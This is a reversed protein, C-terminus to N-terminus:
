GSTWLGSANFRIGNTPRQGVLQLDTDLEGTERQLAVCMFLSMESVLSRYINSLFVTSDVFPLSHTFSRVLVKAHWHLMEIHQLMRATYHLILVEPIEDGKADYARQLHVLNWGTKSGTSTSLMAGDALNVFSLACPFPSTTITTTKSTSHEENPIRDGIIQLIHYEWALCEMPSQSKLMMPGIGTERLIVVTENSTQAVVQDVVASCNDIVFETGIQVTGQKFSRPLVCTPLDYVCGAKSLVRALTTRRPFSGGSTTTTTSRKWRTTAEHINRSHVDMYRYSPASDIMPIMTTTDDSPVIVSINGFAMQPSELTTEDHDITAPRNRDLNSWLLLPFTATDGHSHCEEPSTTTGLHPFPDDNPTTLRPPVHPLPFCDTTEDGRRETYPDDIRQDAPPVGAENANNTDHFHHDDDDVGGVSDHDCFIAFGTASVHNDEKTPGEEKEEYITFPATVPRATLPIPSVPDVDPESLVDVRGAATPSPVALVPSAFLFSLERMAFQTHITPEASCLPENRHDDYTSSNTSTNQPLLQSSHNVSSDEEMDSPSQDVANHNTTTVVAVQYYGQQFRAEEFSQETRTTPHTLLRHKWMPRTTTTTTTTSAAHRQREDRGRRHQAWHEQRATEEAQQQRRCDDDMHIAFGVATNTSLLSPAPPPASRQHNTTSRTETTTSYTNRLPGSENWKEVVPIHTQNEKYREAETVMPRTSSSSLHTDRHHHRPFAPEPATDSFVAFSIPPPQSSSVNVQDTPHHRRRRDTFTSIQQQRQSSSRQQQPHSSPPLLLLALPEGEETPAYQRHVTSSLPHLIGRLSSSSAHRNNNTTTAPQHYRLLEQRYHPNETDLLTSGTTGEGEEVVSGEGFLLLQQQQQYNRWYRHLRKQFRAYRVQLSRIADSSSTSLSRLGTQFIHQTLTFYHQSEATYAWANFFLATAADPDVHTTTITTTSDTMSNTNSGGVGYQTHLEYFTALPDYSADAYLCCIRIFRRDARYYAHPQQSSLISHVCQEYLQFLTASTTVSKTGRYFEDQLFKLYDIWIQLPDNDDHHHHDNNNSNDDHNTNKSPSLTSTTSSLAVIQREYQEKRELLTPMAAATNNHPALRTSSSSSSAMTRGRSIPATNEKVHEWDHPHHTSDLSSFTAMTTSLTLTRERYHQHARPARPTTPQHHQERTCTTKHRYM